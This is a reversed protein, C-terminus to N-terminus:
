FSFRYLLKFEYLATEQVNTGVSTGVDQTKRAFQIVMNGFGFNPFFMSMPFEISIDSSNLNNVKGDYTFIVQGIESTVKLRTDDTGLGGLEVRKVVGELGMKKVFESATTSLISSGLANSIAEAQDLLRGKEASGMLEDTFLGVLIFSLADSQPDGARPRSQSDPSDWRLDWTVEPKQRTGSIQIIVFVKRREGTTQDTHYDSYVAKLDLDPNEPDRIFRLKGSASFRKGFQEYYSETGLSVEGIWRPSGALKEVKLADIVLRANLEEQALTSFPMVIRLGGETAVNISYNLGDFISPVKTVTEAGNKSGNKRPALEGESERKPVDDLIGYQINSYDTQSAGQGEQPFTLNGELIRVNGTFWSRELRGNFNLGDPGSAIILDGYMVKVVSRSASRLVKLRGEMILNFDSVAFGKTEITGTASMAGDRWDSPDNRVLFEKVEIRNEEPELRIKFHYDMNNFLFRGHANEVTLFGEYQPREETGSLTLDANVEGQLPSFLGIFKETLSLPFRHMQIRMNASGTLGRKEEGAFSLNMPVSGSVFFVKSKSGDNSQHYLESYLELSRKSYRGEIAIEGFLSGQFGLQAIFVDVAIEPEADTGGLNLEIEGDGVFSRGTLAQPNGTLYYEFEGIRVGALRVYFTNREGASRKGSVQLTTGDNKMHMREVAIEDQDLTFVVPDTNVWTQKLISVACKSLELRYEDDSVTGSGQLDISLTTDLSGKLALVPTKNEFRLLAEVDRFTRENVNAEDLRLKVAVRLRDLTHELSLDSIEFDCRLNSAVLILSTDMYHADDFRIKGRTFMGTEMGWVEGEYTGRLYLSRAGIYPAFREPKKMVIQYKADIFQTTDIGDFAHQTTVTRSAVSAFSSDQVLDIDKYGELLSDLQRPVYRAFRPLDFRGRLIVDAYQSQLSFLRESKRQQDLEMTLTDRGIDLELFKSPEFAVLMYGSADDLSVSNGEAELSFTLDSALSDNDVVKSLDFSRASAKVRFGTVTDKGFVMSGNMNLSSGGLQAALLLKLSDPRVTVDAEFLDSFYRQFRSASDAKIKANATISGLSTGVGKVNATLTLSSQLRPNRLVKALNLNRTQLEADYLLQEGSVDLTTKGSVSGADSDMDVEADFKLPRGYFQLKRFRALGVESYDPLPIGPLVFPLDAGHVIADDSVVDIFLEEGKQIDYMAGTFTFESNLTALWLKDIKLERLSGHVQVDLSPATGLISLAPLFYQLDRLDISNSQFALMMPLSSFTEFNINESLDLGDVRTSILMSSRNTQVSLRDIRVSEKEFRVDGSVNEVSVDGNRNGFRLQNISLQTAGPQLDASLAVNLKEFRMDAGNLRDRRTPEGSTSDHMVFSGDIIRVSEVIIHWEFEGEESATTDRALSAINWDRGAAKTISIEPELLTIEHLVVRKWPIHFLNYRLTISKVAVIPAGDRTLRVNELRWGSFLNGDLKGIELHAYLASDVTAILFDTALSKFMRTETFGIIVALLLVVGIFFFLFFRIVRM